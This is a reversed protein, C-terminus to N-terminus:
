LGSRRRPSLQPMDAMGRPFPSPRQPRGNRPRFVNFRTRDCPLPHPTRARFHVLHQWSDNYERVLKFHPLHRKEKM